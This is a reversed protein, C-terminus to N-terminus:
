HNICTWWRMLLYILRTVGYKASPRLALTWITWLAIISFIRLSIQIKPEVLYIYICTSLCPKELDPRHWSTEKNRSINENYDRVFWGVSNIFLRFRVNTYIKFFRVAIELNLWTWWFSFCSNDIVAHFLVRIMLVSRVGDVCFSIFYLIGVILAFHNKKWKLRIAHFQRLIFYFDLNNWKTHVNVVCFLIM